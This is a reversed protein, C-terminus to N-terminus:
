YQHCFNRVLRSRCRQRPDRRAKPAASLGPYQLFQPNQERRATHVFSKSGAKIATDINVFWEAGGPQSVSTVEIGTAKTFEPYVFEALSDEFYGGYASVKLPDKAWARPLYTGVALAGAITSSNKIFDRRNLKKNLKRM